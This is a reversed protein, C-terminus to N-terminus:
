QITPEPKQEQEQCCTLDEPLNLEPSGPAILGVQISM